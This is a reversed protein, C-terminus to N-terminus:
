AVEQEEYHERIEMWDVDALFAMAYDRALGEPTQNEILEEVFERMECAAMNSFEGGDFIELNVRWTAYNSWGNCTNDTNKMENIKIHTLLYNVAVSAV